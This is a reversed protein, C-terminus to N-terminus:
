ELPPAQEQRSLGVFAGEELGGVTAGVFTGVAKGVRLGVTGFLQGQPVRIIPSDQTRQAAPVYEAVALALAGRYQMVQGIPVDESAPAQEHVAL